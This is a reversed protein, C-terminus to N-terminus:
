DQVICHDSVENGLLTSILYASAQGQLDGNSGRQDGVAGWDNASQAVSQCAADDWGPQGASGVKGPDIDAVIPGGEVITTGTGPTNSITIRSV